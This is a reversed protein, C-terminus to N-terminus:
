KAEEMFILIKVVSAGLKRRKVDAKKVAEYKNVCKKRVKIAKPASKFLYKLHIDLNKIM